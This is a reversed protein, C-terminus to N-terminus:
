VPVITCLCGPHAPPVRDGSPFDSGLSVAGESANTRCRGEPCRPEDVALWRVTKVDLQEWADLLGHEWTRLLHEDVLSEVVPGRLDRFVEGVRESLQPETEEAELGARLTARLSSTVEHALVARFTAVAAHVRAGGELGSPADREVTLAADAIAAAYAEDLHPEGHGGLEELVEDSPLLATLDGSAGGRRIAALCVNQVEQLARKCSRGMDTRIAALAEDRRLAVAADADVPEAPEGAPADVPADVPEDAAEVAVVAEDVIVVPPTPAPAPEPEPAPAPEPEAAPAAAAPEAAAEPEPAPAAAAAAPEPDGDADDTAPAQAPAAAPQAPTEHALGGVASTVQTVAGRLEGLFSDRQAELRRLDAAVQDRRREAEAVTRAAQQNARDTIERAERRAKAEVERGNILAKEEIAKASDEAAVLIRTTEEGLVKLAERPEIPGREAAPAPTRQATDLAAQLEEIQRQQEEVQSAVEDLYASVEDREYGRLAVLFRRSRIDDPAPM